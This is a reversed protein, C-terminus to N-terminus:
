PKRIHGADIQPIVEAPKAPVRWSRAVQRAERLEAERTKWNPHKEFAERVKRAANGPNPIGEETFKSVMFCTFSDLGKSAQEQKREENKAIASLLNELAKELDALAKDVNGARSEALAKQFWAEANGPDKELAKAFLELAKASVNQRMHFFALVLRHGTAADARQTPYKELEDLTQTDLWANYFREFLYGGAPRKMLADYYRLAKAQAEEASVPPNAPEQACSFPSGALAFLLPLLGPSKM